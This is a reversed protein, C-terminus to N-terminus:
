QKHSGILRYKNKNVVGVAPQHVRQEIDTVLDNRGLGIGAVEARERMGGETHAVLPLLEDRLQIAGDLKQVAVLQDLPISQAIDRQWRNKELSFSTKPRPDPLLLDVTAM